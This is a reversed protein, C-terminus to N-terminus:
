GLEGRKDTGESSGPATEHRGPCDAKGAPWGCGCFNQRYIGYQRSLQISRLTGNQKKFDAPLWKVGTRAAIIEGTHNIVEANKHPSVTLTTTFYDYHGEAALRATEELRLHFCVTCRAGGEPEQELGAAAREFKEGQWGIEWLKLPRDFPMASLLQQLAALRRHYEEEPRINPNYFLVTMDFWPYLYELVYSACPGCCAHLLLRPRSSFQSVITELEKQYNRKEM